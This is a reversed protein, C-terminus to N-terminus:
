GPPSRDPNQPHAREPRRDAGQGPMMADDANALPDETGDPEVEPAVTAPLNDRRPSVASPASSTSSTSPAAAVPPRLLAAAPTDHTAPDPLM